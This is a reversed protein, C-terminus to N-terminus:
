TSASGASSPSRTPRPHRTVAGRAGAPRPHLRRDPQPGPPMDEPRAPRTAPPLLGLPRPVQSGRRDLGSCPSKGRRCNRAPRRRRCGSRPNKRALSGDISNAARPSARCSPRARRLSRGPPGRATDLRLKGKRSGADPGHCKFCNDSLIPRIDRQFDIKEVARGVAPLLFFSLLAARVTLSRKM